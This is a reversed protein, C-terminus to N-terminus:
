APPGSEEAAQPPAGARPERRRQMVDSFAAALIGTPIAVAAVGILAVFAGVAKGLPTIPYSDGYGVTTMTIMSWWLARPISGFLAPQGEGEVLYMATASVLVLALLLGLSVALERFRSRLVEVIVDLAGFRAFRLIRVIRLARLASANTAGFSLVSPVIALMDILAFPTLLFRVRGMLGRFRPVEGATWLRLGLEVSFLALLLRDAHGLWAGFRQEIVPETELVQLVVSCGILSMVILNAPSVGPHPWASADLQELWWRRRTM